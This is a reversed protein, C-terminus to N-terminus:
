NFVAQYDQLAPDVTHVPAVYFSYTPGEDFACEYTGETMYYELRPSRFMLIFPDRKATAIFKEGKTVKELTMTFPTGAFRVTKGVLPEFHHVELFLESM